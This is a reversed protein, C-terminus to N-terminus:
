DASSFAGAAWGNAAPASRSAGGSVATNAASATNNVGGSVTASTGSAVNLVGGTVTAGPAGIGNASGAVLGGTSTYEHGAGVILNHEGVRNPSAFHPAQPAENYGVVLNGLGTPAGGDNTSGSGSRVHVNVGEFVLQPGALGQTPTAEVTVYLSLMDVFASSANAQPELSDLRDTLDTAVSQADALKTEASELRDTLDTIATQAAALKTELAQIRSELQSVHSPTPWSVLVKGRGVCGAPDVGVSVKRGKKVCAYTLNQQASAESACFALATGLVLFAALRRM